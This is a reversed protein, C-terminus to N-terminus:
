KTTDKDPKPTLTIRVKHTQSPKRRKLKQFLKLISMLEVESTQCFKGTLGDSDPSKQTPLNTIVLKDGEENNTQQSNKNRRSQTKTITYKQSKIQKKQTVLKNAYLQEYFDRM